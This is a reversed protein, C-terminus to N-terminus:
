EWAHGFAPSSSRISSASSAPQRQVPGAALQLQGLPRRWRQIAPGLAVRQAADAPLWRQLDCPATRTATTLRLAGLPNRTSPGCFTAVWSASDWWPRGAPPVM